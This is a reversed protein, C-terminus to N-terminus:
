IPEQKNKCSLHEVRTSSLFRAIDHVGDVYISQHLVPLGFEQVRGTPGPDGRTGIGDPVPEQGRDPM